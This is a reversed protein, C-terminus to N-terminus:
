PEPYVLNTVKVPPADEEVVGRGFEYRREGLAHVLATAMEVSNFTDSVKVCENRSHWNYYGSSLNMCSIDFRRRLAMVDSYPHHQWKTLGFQNLVPLGAKIFDGNNAFLRTGSSTYSLMDNAPCDFELVYGIDDFVKADAKSSGQCGIEEAAFFTVAINDFRKLLELCIFVGSKDDGGFGVRQGNEDIGVLLGNSQVVTFKRDIPQVSDIHAAVCPYHAATGKKIFVNNYRDAFANTNPQKGAEELIFAVM